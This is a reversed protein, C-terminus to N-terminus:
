PKLPAVGVSAYLPASAYVIGSKMTSAVRGIDSIKALPDGDVVFLDATKGKEISGTTKDKKMARAPEITAMRIADAPKIGARVFLELEHHLMLGALTDTGVVVTVKADALAKVMALLKDYSRNYLEEKGEHPLGGELFSRQVQVPLRAVMPELGPLIQGQKGLFLDEFADLTPDIVTKKQKLMAIFDVVPKSKLDFDAAKDGVLTFRTTDRTDTDHTAFFNLFLMNIHEIGDYGDAIAEHALVHVPIHGTVSMGRAHAEKAIIPILERKVSNYIKMGDYGRKAYFEVAAKAEEPTEATIKSSAAKEGRGEVFGMRYVHPGVATGEDWRKKYDDLKDPDNGVDRATTVGSAIDLAGDPPGLHSHMDWLGPLIARNKLDVSLAGSPIKTGQTPGVAAIKDGVVVVTQDLLWKGHEVDLVRAHIFALGEAPPKSAASKALALERKKNAEDQIDALTKASADWGEPLTSSWQDASGFWTNDDNMWVYTPTLDLGDIAYGVVHRSEAGKKITVEAIRELRAEGGPLLPLKGGNKLLANVLWGVADPTPAFPMFFANEAVDRDGHEEAGQWKAHSGDRAYTEGIPTGMTHHGKAEFSALIGDARLRAKAEVHPGRGNELVDYIFTVEGDSSTTTVLTGSPRSQEIFIRKITVAQAPATAAKPAEPPAPTVPPPAEPDCATISLLLPLLWLARM